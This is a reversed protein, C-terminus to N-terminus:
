LWVTRLKNLRNPKLLLSASGAEDNGPLKCNLFKVTASMRMKDKYQM